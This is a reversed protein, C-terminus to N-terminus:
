EKAKSKLDSPMFRDFIVSDYYQRSSTLDNQSHITWAFAPTKFLSRLIKLNFLRLGRCFEYAIFDPRGYWNFMLHESLFLLPAPVGAESDFRCSLQGRIVQPQNKKYWHLVLPSFSEICYDGHYGSLLDAAVPCVATSLRHTKLEILLPVQGDVLDLVASLLPIKESTNGLTLNQLEAYTYDWINGEVGCMRKLTNDHFVVAQRDKTLHVDLEIACGFSVAQRFAPLSNEPVKKVPSWLGRHAFLLGCFRRCQGHRDTRPLLAFFFLLILFILIICTWIFILM